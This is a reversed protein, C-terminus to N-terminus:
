RITAILYPKRASTTVVIFMSLSLQRRRDRYGGRVERFKPETRDKVEGGQMDKM